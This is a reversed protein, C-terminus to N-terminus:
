EREGKETSSNRSRLTKIHTLDTNGLTEDGRISSVEYRRQKGHTGLPKRPKERTNDRPERTWREQAVPIPFAGEKEAKQVWEVYCSCLELKRLVQLVLHIHM